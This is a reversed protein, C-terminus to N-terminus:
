DFCFCIYRLVFIHMKFFLCTKLGTKHCNEYCDPQLVNSAFNLELNKFFYNFLTLFTWNQVFYQVKGHKYKNRKEFMFPHLPYFQFYRIEIKKCCIDLFNRPYIIREESSWQAKTQIINQFFDAGNLFM